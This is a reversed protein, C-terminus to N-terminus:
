TGSAAVSGGVIPHSIGYSEARKRAPGSNQLYPQRGDTITPAAWIKSDRSANRRWMDNHASEPLRPQSPDIAQWRDINRNLHRESGSHRPPVHDPRRVAEYSYRCDSRCQMAGPIKVLRAFSWRAM